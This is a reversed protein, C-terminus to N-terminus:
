QSYSHYGEGEWYMPDAMKTETSDAETSTDNTCSKSNKEPSTTTLDVTELAVQDSGQIVTLAVPSKKEAATTTANIGKTSGVHHPTTNYGRGSYGTNWDNFSPTARFTHKSIFEGTKADVRIMVEEKFKFTNNCKWKLDRCANRVIESATCFVIADLEDVYYAFLQASSSRFIDMIEKGSEDKSLVGCAYYGQLPRVAPEIASPDNMVKHDVYQNLISESDCTSQLVKLEHANRIIGNHILATNDLVFPHVNMLGKDCTAMRTHFLVAFTEKPDALGFKNYRPEASLTGQFKDKMDQDAQTWEKRFKWADEPNLWREGWIGNPSIAAYGVGDKDREAMYPTAAMLFDWLKSDAIEPKIGAIMMNKCM